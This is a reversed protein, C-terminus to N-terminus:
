FIEFTIQRRKSNFGINGDEQASKLKASLIGRLFGMPLAFFDISEYIGCEADKTFKKTNKRKECNRNGHRAPI